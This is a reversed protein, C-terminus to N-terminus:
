HPHPPTSPTHTTPSAPLHAHHQNTSPHHPPHTSPHLRGRASRQPSHRVAAGSPGSGAWAGAPAAGTQAYLADTATEESRVRMGHTTKRQKEEQSAGYRATQRPTAPM